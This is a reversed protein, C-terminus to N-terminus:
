DFRSTNEYNEILNEQSAAEDASAWAQPLAGPYSMAILAWTAPSKPAGGLKWSEIQQTLPISPLRSPVPENSRASQPTAKILKLPFALVNAIGRLFTGRWEGLMENHWRAYGRSFRSRMETHELEQVAEWADQAHWRRAQPESVLQREHSEILEWPAANIVCQGRLCGSDNEVHYQDTTVVFTEDALPTYLTTRHHQAGLITGAGCLALTRNEPSLFATGLIQVRPHKWHYFHGGYRWGFHLFQTAARELYPSDYVPMGPPVRILEHKRRHEFLPVLLLAGFFLLAIVLPVGFCLWRSAGQFFEGIALPGLEM